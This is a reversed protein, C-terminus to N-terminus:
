DRLRGSVASNNYAHFHFMGWWWLVVRGLADGCPLREAVRIELAIDELRDALSAFVSNLQLSRVTKRKWLLSSCLLQKGGEDLVSVGM